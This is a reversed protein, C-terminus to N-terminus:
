QVKSIFDQQFQCWGKSSICPTSATIELSAKDQIGFYHSYSTKSELLALFQRQKKLPYLFAHNHYSSVCFIPFHNLHCVQLHVNSIFFVGPPISPLHPEPSFMLPSSSRSMHVIWLSVCYFNFFLTCLMRLCQVKSFHSCFLIHMINSLEPLLFACLFATAEKGLRHRRKKGWHYDGTVTEWAEKWFFIGVDAQKYNHVQSTLRPLWSAVSRTEEGPRQSM